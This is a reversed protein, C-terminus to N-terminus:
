RMETFSIIKRKRMQKIQNSHLKVYKDVYDILFVKVVFTQNSHLKM